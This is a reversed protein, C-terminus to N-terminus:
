APASAKELAEKWARLAGDDGLVDAVKMGRHMGWNQQELGEIYSAVGPVTRM